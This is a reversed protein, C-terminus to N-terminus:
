QGGGRQRIAVAVEHFGRAIALALDRLAATHADLTAILREEVDVSPPISPAPVPPEDQSM